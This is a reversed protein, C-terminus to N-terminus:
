TLDARAALEGNPKRPPRVLWGQFDEKDMLNKHGGSFGTSGTMKLKPPVQDSLAIGERHDGARDIVERALAGMGFLVRRTILFLDFPDLDGASIGRLHQM